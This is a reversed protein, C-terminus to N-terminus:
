VRPFPKSLPLPLQAALLRAAAPNSAAAPPAYSEGKNDLWQGGYPPWLHLGPRDLM